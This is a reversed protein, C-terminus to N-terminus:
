PTKTVTVEAKVAVDAARRERLERCLRLITHRVLQPTPTGSSCAHYELAELEDASLNGAEEIPAYRGDTPRHQPVQEKPSATEAFYDTSTYDDGGTTTFEAMAQKHEPSNWCMYFREDDTYRRKEIVSVVPAHIELIEGGRDDYSSPWSTGENYIRLAEAENPAKIEREHWLRQVRETSIVRWPWPYCKVCEENGCPNPDEPTETM